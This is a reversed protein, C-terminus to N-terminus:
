FRLLHQYQLILYETPMKFSGLTRHDSSITGIYLTDIMVGLYLQYTPYLGALFYDRNVPLLVKKRGRQVKRNNELIHATLLNYQNFLRKYVIWM